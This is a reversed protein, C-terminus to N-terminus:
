FLMYYIYKHLDGKTCRPPMYMCQAQKVLLMIAMHSLVQMVAFYFINAVNSM